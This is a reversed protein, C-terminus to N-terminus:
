SSGPLRARAVETWSVGAEVVERMRVVLCPSRRRRARGPTVGLLAQRESVVPSTSRRGSRRVRNWSVAIASMVILVFLVFAEDRQLLAHHGAVHQAIEIAGMQDLAKAPGDLIGVDGFGNALVALSRDLPVERGRSM